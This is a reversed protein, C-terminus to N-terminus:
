RIADRITGSRPENESSRLASFQLRSAASSPSQSKADVVSLAGTVPDGIALEKLIQALGGDYEERSEGPLVRDVKLLRGIASGSRLGKSREM